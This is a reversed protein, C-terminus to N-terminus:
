GRAREFGRLGVVVGLLLLAALGVIAAVLAADGAGVTPSSPAPAAPETPPPPPPVIGPGYLRRAEELYRRGDDSDRPAQLTTLDASLTGDAQRVPAIILDTGTFVPYSCDGVAEGEKFAILLEPAAGPGNLWREVHFVRGGAVREGIRGVVVVQGPGLARLTPPDLPPSCALAGPPAALVAALAVLIAAARM